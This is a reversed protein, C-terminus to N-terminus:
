LPFDPLFPSRPMRSVSLIPTNVRISTNGNSSLSGRRRGGIKFNKTHSHYEYTDSTSNGDLRHTQRHRGGSEDEWSRDFNGTCGQHSIPEDRSNLKNSSPRVGFCSDYPKSRSDRGSRYTRSYHNDYEGKRSMDYDSALEQDAVFQQRTRSTPYQALYSNNEPEPPVIQRRSIEMTSPHRRHSKSFHHVGALRREAAAQVAHLMKRAEDIEETSICRADRLRTLHTEADAICAMQYDMEERDCVHSGVYVKIEGLHLDLAILEDKGQSLQSLNQHVHRQSSDVRFPQHSAPPRRNGAHEVSGCDNRSSVRTDRISAVNIYRFHDALADADDYRHKHFHSGYAVSDSDRAINLNELTAQVAEVFEPRLRRSGKLKSSVHTRVNNREKPDLESLLWETSIPHHASIIRGTSDLSIVDNFETMGSARAAQYGGPYNYIIDNNHSM